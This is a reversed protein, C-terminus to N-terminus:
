RKMQPRYLRLRTVIEVSHFDFLERRALWNVRTVGNQHFPDLGMQGELVAVVEGEWFIRSQQCLRCGYFTIRAELEPVSHVGCMALCHPCLLQGARHALRTTTEQEIGRLLRIASRRLPSTIKTAIPQLQAAGEGGSVTLLHRATFREVWDLSQLHSVLESSSDPDQKDRELSQLVDVWIQQASPLQRCAQHLAAEVDHGPPRQRWWVWLARYRHLHKPNPERGFGVLWGVLKAGLSTILALGLMVIGAMHGFGALWGLLWGVLGGLLQFVLGIGLLGLEGPALNATLQALWVRTPLQRQFLRALL